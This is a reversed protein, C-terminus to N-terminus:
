RRHSVKQSATRAQMLCVCFDDGGALQQVPMLLKSLKIPKARHARKLEISAAVQEETREFRPDDQHEYIDQEVADAMARAGLGSGRGGVGRGEGARSGGRGAGGGGVGGGDRGGSGGTGGTGGNSASSAEGGAKGCTRVHFPPAGAYNLSADIVAEADAGGALRFPGMGFGITDGEMSVAASFFPGAHVSHVGGRLMSLELSVPFAEHAPREVAHGTQGNEREGMTWLGHPLTNDRLLITEVDPEVLAKQVAAGALTSRGQGKRKLQALATKKRHAIADRMDWPDIDELPLEGEEGFGESFRGSDSEEHVIIDSLEEQPYYDDQPDDDFQALMAGGAGDALGSLM